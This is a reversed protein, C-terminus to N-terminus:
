SPSSSTRKRRTPGTKHGGPGGSSAQQSGGAPDGGLGALVAVTARYAGAFFAGVSSLLGGPAERVVVEGTLPPNMHDHYKWAGPKDLTISWSTGPQVPKKPDFAPYLEHTPHDDSAPWHGEDDVNEFVVTEGAAVEVSEPEFGGNTAHVVVGGAEEHALSGKVPALFLAVSVCALLCLSAGLRHLMSSLDTTMM